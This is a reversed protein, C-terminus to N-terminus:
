GGPRCPIARLAALGQRDGPGFGTLGTYHPAMLEGDNNVHDLGVLHGLEHMVIARARVYGDRGALIEALGDRNLVVQGTVYRASEPGAPALSTSGGEGEIDGGIEPYEAHDAWVVLVPAGPARYALGQNGAVPRDQSAGDDVFNLGSAASVVRVAEQVLTKAGPPQGAPNVVYHIPRCPDYGVPRGGPTTMMFAYPGTGTAGPERVQGPGAGPASALLGPFAKGVGYVLGLAVVASALFILNAKGLGRWRGRPAEGRDLRDLEALRRSMRRYRIWARM